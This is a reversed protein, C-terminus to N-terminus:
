DHSTLVPLTSLSFRVPCTCPDEDYVHLAVMITGLSSGSDTNPTFNIELQNLHELPPEPTLIRYSGFSTRGCPDLLRAILSPHLKSRHYAM